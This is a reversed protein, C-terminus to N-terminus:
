SHIPRQRASFLMSWLRSKQVASTHREIALHSSILGLQRLAKSNLHLVENICRAFEEISDNRAVPGVHCSKLYIVSYIDPSGITLIPKGLGLYLPIKGSFSYKFYSCYNTDFSDLYLLCDTNKQLDLLDDDLPSPLLEVKVMVTSQFDSTESAAGYLRFVVVRNGVHSANCALIVNHLLKRRGYDLRGFISFVFDNSAERVEGANVLLRDLLELPLGNSAHTMPLGYNNHYINAMVPSIGVGGSCLPLLKRMRRNILITRLKRIISPSISVTMWDDMFHPIVPANCIANIQTVLEITQLSGLWTYIIDPKYIDLLWVKFEESISPVPLMDFLPFLYNKINKPIFSKVSLRPKQKLINEDLSVKKLIGGRMPFAAQWYTDCVSYDPKSENVFVLSIKDPPWGSFLNKLTISSSSM